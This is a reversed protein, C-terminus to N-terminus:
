EGGERGGSGIENVRVERGEDSKGRAGATGKQIWRM